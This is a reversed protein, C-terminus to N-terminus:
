KTLYVKIFGLTAQLNRMKSKENGYITPISVFGIAINHRGANIIMETEAEFGNTDPLINKIIKANFARFGCQSDFIKQNLKISLLFSTIKNSIIRLPPMDSINDLRNGIVFDYRELANLFKPIFEPDHQLDADITVFRNYDLELGKLLGKKISYGKGRNTNNSLILINKTKPITSLSDDTSGDNVCIIFDVFRSVKELLLSLSQYENYFPIVACTRNPNLLNSM